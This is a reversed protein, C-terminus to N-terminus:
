YDDVMAGVAAAVVVVPAFLAVCRHSVSNWLLCVSPCVQIISPRMCVSWMGISGCYPFGGTPQQWVSANNQHSRSSLLLVCKALLRLQVFLHQSSFFNMKGTM